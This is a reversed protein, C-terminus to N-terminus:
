DDEANVTDRYPIAIYRALHSPQNVALQMLTSKRTSVTQSSAPDPM